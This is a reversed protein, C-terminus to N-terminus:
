TNISKSLSQKIDRAIEPHNSRIARNYAAKIIIRDYGHRMERAPFFVQPWTGHPPWEEPEFFVTLAMKLSRSPPVQGFFTMVEKFLTLQRPTQIHKLLAHAYFENLRSETFLGPLISSFEKLTHLLDESSTSILLLESIYSFFPHYPTLPQPRHSYTFQIFELLAPFLALYNSAIFRLAPRCDYLRSIPFLIRFSAVDNSKILFAIIIKAFAFSKMLPKIQDISLRKLVIHSILLSRLEDHEQESTIRIMLQVLDTQSITSFNLTALNKISRYDDGAEFGLLRERILYKRRDTYVENFKTNVASLAPFHPHFSFIHALLDSPLSGIPSTQLPVVKLSCKQFITSILVIINPKELTPIVPLSVTLQFIYFVILLSSISAIMHNYLYTRPSATIRNQCESTRIIQHAYLEILIIVIIM